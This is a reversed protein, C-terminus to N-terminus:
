GKYAYVRAAAGCERRADRTEGLAPPYPFVHGQASSFGSPRGDLTEPVGVSPRPGVTPHNQFEGVETALNVGCSSFIERRAIKLLKLRIELSKLGM